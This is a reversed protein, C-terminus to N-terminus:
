VLTIIKSPARLKPSMDRAFVLTSADDARFEDADARCVDRIKAVGDRVWRERACRKLKSILTWRQLHSKNVAFSIVLFLQLVLISAFREVERKLLTFGKRRHLKGCGKKNELRHSRQQYCFRTPLLICYERHGCSVRMSFRIPLLLLFRLCFLWELIVLGMWPPHALFSCGEGVRRRYCM